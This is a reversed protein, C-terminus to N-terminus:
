LMTCQMISGHCGHAEQGAWAPASLQGSCLHNCSFSVGVHAMLPLVVSGLCDEPAARRAGGGQANAVLSLFSHQLARGWTAPHLLLLLQECGTRVGLLLCTSISFRALAVLVAHLPYITSLGRATAAAELLLRTPRPLHTCRCQMSGHSCLCRCPVPVRRQSLREATEPDAPTLRMRGGDPDWAQMM